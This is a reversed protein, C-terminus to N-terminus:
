GGDECADLPESGDASADTGGDTAGDAAPPSADRGGDIVPGADSTLGADAGSSIPPSEGGDEAPVSVTAGDTGGSNGQGGTTSTSGSDELGTEGPPLPQPNLSCAAAVIGFSLACLALGALTHFRRTPM